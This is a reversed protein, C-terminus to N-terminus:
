EGPTYLNRLNNEYLSVLFDIDEKSVFGDKSNIGKCYMKENDWSEKSEIIRKWFPYTICQIPRNQYISCGNEKLFICDNNSYEKLVLLDEGGDSKFRRTYVEVTEDFTLNVAKAINEIDVKSLFVLGPENACCDRCGRDCSFNLGDKYFCSM